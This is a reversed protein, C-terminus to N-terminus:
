ELRLVLNQLEALKELVRDKLELLQPCLAEAAPIDGADRLRIIETGVEHVQAHIAELDHYGLLYGYRERGHGYYWHGFRCHHHDRLEGDALQLAGGGAAQVVRKVWQVHDHQAVLLPFDALDWRTDAWRQWCPHPQFGAVWAPVEAAPMPRAIGYGQASGCGLRLLL